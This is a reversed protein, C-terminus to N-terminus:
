QDLPKIQWGHLFDAIRDAPSAVLEIEPQATQLLNAMFMPSLLALVAEFPNSGRLAGEAQYRSLVSAISTIAGLPIPAVSQLEQRRPAELLFDVILRGRRDLLGRYANVIAALDVELDGSYSVAARAFREAEWQLAAKLLEIKDGFRRFLTVEGVNAAQAIRKTTAGAFGRQTWVDLAAELIVEEPVPAPM